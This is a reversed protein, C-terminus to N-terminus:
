EEELKPNLMLTDIIKNLNQIKKILTLETFTYSEKIPALMTHEYLFKDFEVENFGLVEAVEVKSYVGEKKMKVIM